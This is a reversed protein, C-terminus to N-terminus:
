EDDKAFILDSASRLARVLRDADKKLEFEFGQDIRVKVEVWKQEGDGASVVALIDFGPPM